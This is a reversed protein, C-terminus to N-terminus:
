KAQLELYALSTLKNRTASVLVDYDGKKLKAHRLVLTNNGAKGNAKFSAVTKKAHLVTVVVAAPVDLRYRLLTKPGLNSAGLKVASLKPPFQGAPVLGQQGAPWATTLNLKTGNLTATYGPPFDQEPQGSIRVFGSGQIVHYVLAGSAPDIGATLECGRVGAVARDTVVQFQDNGGLATTIKAWLTGLVLKVSIETAQDHVESTSDLTAESSPGFRIVSGDNLTVEMRGGPGTRITQGDCVPTGVPLASGESFTVKGIKTGSKCDLSLTGDWSISWTCATNTSSAPGQGTCTASTAGPAKGSSVPGSYGPALQEAPVDDIAAMADPIAQDFFYTDRGIFPGDTNKPCGNPAVTPVLSQAEIREPDTGSVTLQPQTGSPNLPSSCAPVSQSCVGSVTMDTTGPSGSTLTGQAGALVGGDLTTDFQSDWHLTWVDHTTCSYGQYTYTQDITYSGNGQFTVTVPTGGAAAAGPSWSGLGVVIAAVM